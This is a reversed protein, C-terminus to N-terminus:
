GIIREEVRVIKVLEKEYLNAIGKGVKLLSELTAEPDVKNISKNKIKVKNGTLGDNFGLKLAAKEVKEEM